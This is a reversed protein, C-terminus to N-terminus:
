EVAVFEAGKNIKINKSEHGFVKNIHTSEFPKTVLSVAGMVFIPAIMAIASITAMYPSNIGGFGIVGIAVIIVATLLGSYVGAKTARKWYLGLLYPSSVSLEGKAM